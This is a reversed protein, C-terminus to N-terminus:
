SGSKSLGNLEDLNVHPASAQHYDSLLNTASQIVLKVAGFFVGGVAVPVAVYWVFWM